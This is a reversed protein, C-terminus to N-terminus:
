LCGKLQAAAGYVTAVEYKLSKYKAFPRESFPMGAFNQIEFNINLLNSAWFHRASMMLGIASSHPEDLSWARLPSRSRVIARFTYHAVSRRNTSVLVDYHIM